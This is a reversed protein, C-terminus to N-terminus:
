PNLAEKLATVLATARYAEEAEIRYKDAIQHADDRSIRAQRLEALLKTNLAQLEAVKTELARM